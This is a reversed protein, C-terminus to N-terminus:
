MMESPRILFLKRAPIIMWIAELQLMWLFGQRFQRLFAKREPHLVPNLSGRFLSPYGTLGGAADALYGLATAM